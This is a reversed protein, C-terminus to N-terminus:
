RELDRELQLEIVNLELIGDGQLDDYGLRSPPAGNAHQAAGDAASVVSMASRYVESALQTSTM